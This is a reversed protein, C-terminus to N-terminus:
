APRLECRPFLCTLTTQFTQLSAITIRLVTEFQELYSRGDLAKPFESVEERQHKEAAIGLAARKLCGSTRLIPVAEVPLEV